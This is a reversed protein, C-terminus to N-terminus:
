RLNRYNQFPSTGKSSTSPSESAIKRADVIIFILTPLPLHLSLM